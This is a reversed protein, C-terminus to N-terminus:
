NGANPQPTPQPTPHGADAGSAGGAAAPVLGLNQGVSQAYSSQIRAKELAKSPAKAEEAANEKERIAEESEKRLQELQKQKDRNMPGQLTEALRNSLVGLREDAKQVRAELPAHAAEAKQLDDQKEKLHDRYAQERDSKIEAFRGLREHAAQAEKQAKRYAQAAEIAGNGSTAVRDLASDLKRGNAASNKNAQNEVRQLVANSARGVATVSQNSAIQAAQAAQHANQHDREHAAHAERADTVKEALRQTASLYHPMEPGIAHDYAHAVPAQPQPAQPQPAQPRRALGVAAGARRAWSNMRQLLPRAPPHAVQASSQSQAPPHNGRGGLWTPWAWANSSSGLILASVVILRLPRGPNSRARELLPHPVKM